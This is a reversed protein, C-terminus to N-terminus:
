AAKSALVQAELWSVYSPKPEPLEAYAQILGKREDAVIEFYNSIDDEPDVYIVEEVKYWGAERATLDNEGNKGYYVHSEFSKNFEDFRSYDVSMHGVESEKVIGGVVDFRMGPEPYCGEWRNVGKLCEVTVPGSAALSFLEKFNM